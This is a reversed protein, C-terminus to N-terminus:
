AAAKAQEQKNWQELNAAVDKRATEYEDNWSEFAKNCEEPSPFIGTLSRTGFCDIAESKYIKRHTNYHDVEDAYAPMKSLEALAEESLDALEVGNERFGM